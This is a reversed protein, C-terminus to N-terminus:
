QAHPPTSSSTFQNCHAISHHLGFCYMWSPHFNGDELQAKAVVLFPGQIFKGSLFWPRICTRPPDVGGQGQSVSNPNRGTAHPPSSSLANQMKIRGREMVEGGGCRGDQSSFSCLPQLCPWCRCFLAAPLTIRQWSARGPGTGGAAWSASVLFFRHCHSPSPPRLWCGERCGTRGRQRCPRPSHPSADLHRASAGFSGLFSKTLQGRSDESPRWRRRSSAFNGARLRSLLPLM